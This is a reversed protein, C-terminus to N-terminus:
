GSAVEEADNPINVSPYSSENEEIKAIELVYLPASSNLRQKLCDTHCWLQQSHQKDGSSDVNTTYLLGGVDFGVSEIRLGCFCCQYEMGM